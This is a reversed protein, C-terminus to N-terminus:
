LFILTCFLACSNLFNLFHIGRRKYTKCILIVVDTVQIDLLAVTQNTCFFIHVCHGLRVLFERNYTWCFILGPQVSFERPVDDLFQNM